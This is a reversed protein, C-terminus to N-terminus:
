LKMLHKIMKNKTWYKDIYKHPPLNDKEEDESDDFESDDDPRLQYGNELLADKVEEIHYVWGDNGKLGIFTKKSRKYQDISFEAHTYHKNSEYMKNKYNTSGKWISGNVWYLPRPFRDRMLRNRVSSIYSIPPSVFWLQKNPHTLKIDFFELNNNFILKYCIQYIYEQIDIPLNYFLNM